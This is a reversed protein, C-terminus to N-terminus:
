SKFFFLLWMSLICLDVLDVEGDESLLDPTLDRDIDDCYTSIPESKPVVPAEQEEFVPPSKERDSVVAKNIYSSSKVTGKSTVFDDLVSTECHKIIDVLKNRLVNGTIFKALTTKLGLMAPSCQKTLACRRIFLLLESLETDDRAYKTTMFEVMVRALQQLSTPHAVKGDGSCASHILAKAGLAIDELWSNQSSVLPAFFGKTVLLDVINVLTLFAENAFASYSLIDYARAAAISSTTTNSVICWQGDRIFEFSNKGLMAGMFIAHAVQVLRHINPYSGEGFDLISNIFPSIWSFVSMRSKRHATATDLNDEETEYDLEDIVTQTLQIVERPRLAPKWDQVIQSNSVLENDSEHSTSDETDEGCNLTAWQTLEFCYYPNSFIDRIVVSPDKFTHQWFRSGLKDLLVSYCQMAPWFITTRASLVTPPTHICRAKDVRPTYNKDANSTLNLLVTDVLERHGNVSMLRSRICGGDMAKILM